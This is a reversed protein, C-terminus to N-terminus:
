GRTIKVSITFFLALNIDFSDAEETPLATRISLSPKLYIGELIKSFYGVNLLFNIRDPYIAGPTGPVANVTSSSLFKSYGFGTGIWINKLVFYKGVFSIALYRRVQTEIGSFDSAHSEFSTGIGAMLSETLFFDLGLKPALFAMQNVPSYNMGLGIDAFIGKAEIVEQAASFPVAFVALLVVVVILSKM